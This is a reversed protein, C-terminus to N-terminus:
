QRSGAAGNFLGRRNAWCAIGIGLSVALAAGIGTVWTFDEPKNIGFIGAFLSLMAVLFGAIAIFTLKRNMAETARLETYGVLDILEQRVEDYLAQIRLHRRWMEFLERGQEQPSVEDFWYCQTFEVFRDYFRLVEEREPLRIRRGDADRGVMETLRQSMSLLAAKQFHAIVGMDIHIHRFIAPAGNKGETFFHEDRNDGVISFAYGCNMIRSPSDGSDVEKNEYWFRDYCYSAAFGSMFRNAYPLLDGGPADAFCLRMWDGPTLARPQDLAIWSLIPARDDGLHQVRIADRHTGTCDFPELLRQWHGAWPSRPRGRGAAPELMPEMYSLAFEHSQERFVGTAAPMAGDLTVSVPCHGSSWVRAGRDDFADFYPPYLRRFTDLLLQLRQLPLPRETMVELLLIGLDPQFLILECREVPLRVTFAGTARHDLELTISAIDERHFRRVHTNGYLFRRVFPHFYARAQYTHCERWPPDARDAAAGSLWPGGRLKEGILDLCLEDGSAPSLNFPLCVAHRLRECNIPEAPETQRKPDTM